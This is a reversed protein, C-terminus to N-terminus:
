NKKEPQNVPWTPERGSLVEVIGRAAHLAMRVTCERTLAANHPSLIVNDFLFLPSDDPPPEHQYVDLGAGAIRNSRLADVLAEEDVVDGRSTNIFFATPKMLNFEKEGVLKSTKSTSPVHLSIFDAERFLENWEVLSGVQPPVKEAEIFPDFGIVKMDLGDFTKKAVKAGIRGLGVLGLIKGELDFGLLRNRIEFNGKRLETDCRIYYRASAIILGVTHEAVTNANSDPANTVYIGLETAKKVDINDVGIGYRSIVKLKEGAELVEATYKATRALIADCDRVDKKIEEVSIGTGMTIECDNDRLFNKGEVAIDQPILVKYSM